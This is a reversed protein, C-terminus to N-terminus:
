QASRAYSQLLGNLAVNLKRQQEVSRGDDLGKSRLLESARGLVTDDVERKDLKCLERFAGDADASDVPKKEAQRNLESVFRAFIQKARKEKRKFLLKNIILVLAFALWFIGQFMIYGGSRIGFAFAVVYLSSIVAALIFARTLRLKNKIPAFEFVLSPKEAGSNVYARWQRKYESPVANVYQETKRPFAAVKRTCATLKKNQKRYVNKTFNSVAFLILILAAFALIVFDYRAIFQFFIQIYQM